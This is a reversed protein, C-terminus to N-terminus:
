SPPEVAAVAPRAPANIPSIWPAGPQARAQPTAASRVATSVVNYILSKGIDDVKSATALIMASVQSM